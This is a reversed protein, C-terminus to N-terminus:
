CFSQRVAAHFVRAFSMCIFASMIVPPQLMSPRWPMSPSVTLHKLSLSVKANHKSPRGRARSQRSVGSQPSCVQLSKGEAKGAGGVLLGHLQLRGQAHLRFCYNLCWRTYLRATCSWGSKLIYFHTVLRPLLAKGLIWSSTMSSDYLTTVGSWGHLCHWTTAM